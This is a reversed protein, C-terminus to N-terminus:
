GLSAPGHRHPPLPLELYLTDCKPCLWVGRGWVIFMLKLDGLGRYPQSKTFSQM